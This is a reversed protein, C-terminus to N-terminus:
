SHKYNLTITTASLFALIMSIFYLSDHLTLKGSDMTSFRFIPDLSILSDVVWLPAQHELADLISSLGSVTLLLGLTLLFIALRQHALACVFCGVSLYSGALLWSTLFQSTIAINDAMGLYNVAIVLPFNLLLAIGCVVWAAMFKGIVREVTTVPLTNMTNAFSTDREDAWLQTSLIPILLLYLWPHLEFFAQLDSSNREMWHNAHLGLAACLVLFVAVSLYTSPSSAYSALQRKFVIPLQRM